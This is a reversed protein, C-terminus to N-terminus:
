RVHFIPFLKVYIHIGQYGYKCSADGTETGGQCSRRGLPCWLVTSAEDSLRWYGEKVVMTDNYCTDVGDPCKKCVETWTLDSLHVSSPYTLSYTGTECPSCIHEGYYEGRECARFHLPVTTSLTNGEVTYTINLNMSYGPDCYAVLSSFISEGQTLQQVTGGSVTGSSEYCMAQYLLSAVVYATSETKVIQNYFDVASVYVPPAFQSYQTINYANNDGLSLSRANTAVDDGYLATNNLFANLILGVPEREYPSDWYVAGGGDLASNQNFTSNTVTIIQIRSLWWIASGSGGFATNGQFLSFTVDLGGGSSFVAGGSDSASNGFFSANTVIVSSAVLRIAGGTGIVPDNSVGAANHYFGSRLIQMNQIGVASIAGGLLVLSVSLPILYQVFIVIYV